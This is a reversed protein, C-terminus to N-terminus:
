QSSAKKPSRLRYKGSVSVGSGCYGKSEINGSINVFGNGFKMIMIGGMEEDRDRFEATNGNIAAEGDFQCLHANKSNMNDVSFTLKDASLQKIEISGVTLGGKMRYDGSFDKAMLAACFGISALLLKKM